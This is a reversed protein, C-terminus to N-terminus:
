RSAKHLLQAGDSEGIVRDRILLQILDVVTRQLNEDNSASSVGGIRAESTEEPTEEGSLQRLWASLVDHDRLRIDVFMMGMGLAVHAYTVRAKAEFIRGAHEIRVLVKSGVRMPVLTDVYCGGISIDATRGEIRAGSEPETVRATACFPYRASRRRQPLGAIDIVADENSGPELIAHETPQDAM